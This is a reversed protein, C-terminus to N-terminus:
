RTVIKFSGIPGPNPQADGGHPKAIVTTVGHEVEIEVELVRGLNDVLIKEGNLLATLESQPLDLVIEPRASDNGGRRDSDDDDRDDNNRDGNDDGGGRGPGSNGGDNDGGGGSGSGSNDSGGAGSGGSGPGSAAQAKDLTVIQGGGRSDLQVPVALLAAAVIGKGALISASSLLRAIIARSLGTGSLPLMASDNRNHKQM